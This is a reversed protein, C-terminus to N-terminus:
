HRADGSTDIAAYDIDIFLAEMDAILDDGRHVDGRVFIKRGDHDHVWARLQLPEGLPIPARYNVTLSATAAMTDVLSPAAGAFEDLVGALVGGHGRGPAGGHMPTLTVETTVVGDGFHLTTPTATPNARGAIARYPFGTRRGEESDPALLGAALVEQRDWHPAQEARAALGRAATGIADLLDAPLERDCFLDVLRRLDAATDFLHDVSATTPDTVPASALSLPRRRAM